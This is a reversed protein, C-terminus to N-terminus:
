LKAIAFGKHDFNLINYSSTHTIFGCHNICFLKLFEIGPHSIYDIPEELKILGFEIAYEPLSSM